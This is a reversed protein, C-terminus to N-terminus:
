HLAIRSKGGEGDDGLSRITLMTDKSEQIAESLEALDSACKSTQTSPLPSKLIARLHEASGRGYTAVVKYKSGQNACGLSCFAIHEVLRTLAPNVISKFVDHASMM